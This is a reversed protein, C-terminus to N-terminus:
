GGRGYVERWDARGSASPKRSAAISPEPCRRLCSAATLM